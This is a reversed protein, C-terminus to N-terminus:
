PKEGTSVYHLWQDANMTRGYVPERGLEKGGEKAWLVRLPGFVGFRDVWASFLLLAARNAAAAKERDGDKSVTNGM